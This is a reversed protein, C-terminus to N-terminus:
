SFDLTVENKLEHTEPISTNNKHCPFDIRVVTGVHPTSQISIKGRHLKVLESVIALGLGGTGKNNTRSPEVQYYPEFVKNIDSPEIGIGTDRVELTAFSSRAYTSVTVSGHAPTFLLANKILQMVIQALANPNGWVSLKDELSTTLTLKKSEVLTSLKSVSDHVVMSLDVPEFNLANATRFTSLTLLNDILGSIRDLEEVNSTILSAADPKINKQLLLIESNARIISLPTRLEHAVNSMFKKQGSLAERTPALAVRTALYGFLIACIVSLTGVAVTNSTSIERISALVQETTEPASVSGKETAIIQSIDGIVSTAIDIHFWQFFVAILVLNTACLLLFITILLFQTRAFLDTRLRHLWSTASVESQKSSAPNKTM